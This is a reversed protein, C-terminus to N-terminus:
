YINDVKTDLQGVGFTMAEEKLTGRPFPVDGDGRSPIDRDIDFHSPGLEMRSHKPDRLKDCHDLNVDLSMDARDSCFEDVGIIQCSDGFGVLCFQSFGM